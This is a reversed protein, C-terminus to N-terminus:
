SVPRKYESALSPVTAQGVALRDAILWARTSSSKHVRISGRRGLRRRRLRWYAPRFGIGSRATSVPMKNTRRLPMGHFMNGRSIPQPDPLVHQRRRTRHGRAPTQFRNGRTKSASNRRRPSSSRARATTSLAESRARRPPFLSSRVRGTAAFGPRFMVNKGVALPNREDRPQGRGIAVVDALQQGEDIRHRRDASPGPRGTAFGAGEVAVAAVIRLSMAGFQCLAADRGDQRAAIVPVPAPEAARAPGDLARDGPKVSKTSQIDAVFTPRTNVLREEGQRAGPHTPVKELRDTLKAVHELRLPGRTRRTGRPQINSFRRGRRGGRNDGPGSSAWHGWPTEGHLRRAEAHVAFDRRM